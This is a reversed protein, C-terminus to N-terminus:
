ACGQREIVSPPQAGVDPLPAKWKAGRIGDAAGRVSGGAAVGGVAERSAGGGRHATLVTLRLVRSMYGCNVRERKALEEITGCVCEDLM